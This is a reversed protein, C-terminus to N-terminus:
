YCAPLFVHLDQLARHRVIGIQDRKKQLISIVSDANTLQEAGLVGKRIRARVGTLLAGAGPM